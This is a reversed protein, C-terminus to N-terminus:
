ARIWLGQFFSKIEGFGAKHLLELERKESVFHVSETIKKVAEEMMEPPAGKLQAHNKYANM